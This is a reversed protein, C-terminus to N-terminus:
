VVCPKKNKKSFKQNWLFYSYCWAVVLGLGAVTQELSHLLSEAQTPTYTPLALNDAKNNDTVM